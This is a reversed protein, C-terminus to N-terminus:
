SLPPTAVCEETHNWLHARLWRNFDLTCLRTSICCPWHDFGQFNFTTLPWVALFLQNFNQGATTVTVVSDIPTVCERARTIEMVRWYHYWINYYAPNWKSFHVLPPWIDLAYKYWMCALVQIKKYCSFFMKPDFHGTNNSERSGFAWSVTWLHLCHIQM